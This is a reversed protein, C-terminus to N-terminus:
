FFINIIFFLFLSIYLALFVFVLFLFAQIHLLTVLRYIFLYINFIYFKYGHM